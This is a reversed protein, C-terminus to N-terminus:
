LTLTSYMAELLLNLMRAQQETLRDLPLYFDKEEKDISNLKSLGKVTIKVRIIRKDSDDKKRKVLGMKQMRDVLRSVDSKADILYERLDYVRIGAPANRLARLVRFQPVSVQHPELRTELHKEAVSAVYVVGTFAKHQENKFKINRFVDELSAM